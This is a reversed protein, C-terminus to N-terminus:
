SREIQKQRTAKVMQSIADIIVDPQDFNIFHSSRDAFVQRSNTSLKTLDTQFQLWMKRFRAPNVNSPMDPWWTPGTATLVILPLDGLSGAVGTQGATGELAAGEYAMTKFYRSQLWGARLLPRMEASVGAEQTAFFSPALDLSMLLRTLGLATMTRVIPFVTKGPAVFKLFEMQDFEREHGADVLVMGVVDDPHAQRYLRALFGGLSHGVLVYPGSIGGNTLLQHLEGAMRRGIRPPPGADSWGFGARDYSCVRTVKAIEPQVKNWYVSWGPGMADLIVTPSGEGTCSLHLKYGGVDILRGPPPYEKRDQIMGVLQYGVGVLALLLMGATIRILWRMTPYKRSSRSPIRSLMRHRPANHRESRRM